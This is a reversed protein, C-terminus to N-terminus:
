LTAGGILGLIGGVYPIATGIHLGGVFINDASLNYKGYFVNNYLDHMDKSFESVEGILDFILMLPGLIMLIGGIIGFPKIEKIGAFLCLGAGALVMVGGILVLTVIEDPGTIGNELLIGLATLYLGASIDYSVWLTEEQIERRYWSFYTPFVLSLLVSAIGIAGGAIAINKGKGM